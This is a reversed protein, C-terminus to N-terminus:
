RGGASRESMRERHERILRQALAHDIALGERRSVRQRDAVARREWPDGRYTAAPEAPASAPAEYARPEADSAVCGATLGTALVMTTTIGVVRTVTKANM